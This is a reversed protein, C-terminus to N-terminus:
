ETAEALEKRFVVNLNNCIRRLFEESVGITQNDDTHIEAWKIGVIDWEATSGDPNSGWGIWEGELPVYTGIYDYEQTKKNRIGYHFTMFM